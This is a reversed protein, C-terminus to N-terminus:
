GVGMIQRAAQHWWPTDWLGHVAIAFPLNVALWIIYAPHVSRNRVVDWLFMPSIALLTYLDPTLPSMPMTSPLWPIRDLGAPMAMVTALFMMRKHIGANRGRAKFAIVLFLPFLIGIRIQLLMIDDVVLVTKQLKERVGPPANQAGEWVQHYMTPVLILGVVVLLAALGYGLLGLRMHFERRGTAMLSTQALLVLLFSGMLAAHMHLVLPFPPRLGARVLGLKMLSDPIFGALVIAIFWAAMAVFIWRDIAHARPTGSLVDARRERSGLTDAVTAM